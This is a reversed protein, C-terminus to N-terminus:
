GAFSLSSLLERAHVVRAEGLDLLVARATDDGDEIGIIADVLLALQPQTSLVVLDFQRRPADNKAGGLLLGADLVTLIRGRHQTVGIVAHPLTPLRSVSAVVVVRETDGLPMAFLSTGVRAILLLTV